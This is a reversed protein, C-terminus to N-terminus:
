RLQRNLIIFLFYNTKQVKRRILQDAAVKQVALGDLEEMYKIDASKQAFYCYSINVIIYNPLFIGPNKPLSGDYDDWFQNTSKELDYFSPHAIDSNVSKLHTIINVGYSFFPSVLFLVQLVNGIAALLKESTEKVTSPSASQHNESLIKNMSQFLVASRDLSDYTIKESRGDKILRSLSDAMSAVDEFSSLQVSNVLSDLM